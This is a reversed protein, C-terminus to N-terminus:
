TLAFLGRMFQALTEPDVASRQYGETEPSHTILDVRDDDIRLVLPDVTLSPGDKRPVHHILQWRRPAHQAM